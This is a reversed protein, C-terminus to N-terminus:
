MISHAPGVQAITPPSEEAPMEDLYRQTRPDIMDPPRAWTVNTKKVVGPNGVILANEPTKSAVAAYAGIICGSGIKAHGIISSGYGIWVHDGIVMDMEQPVVEPEHGSLDVIAHHMGACLTVHRSIMCDKGIVLEGRASIITMNVASTESGIRVVGQYDMETRINAGELYGFHARCNGRIVQFHLKGRAKGYEIVVNPQPKARPIVNIVVSLRENIYRRDRVLICNPGFKGRLEIGSPVNGSSLDIVERHETPIESFDAAEPGLYVVRDHPVSSEVARHSTMKSVAKLKRKIRGILNM